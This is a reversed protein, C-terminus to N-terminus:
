LVVEFYRQTMQVSMFAIGEDVDDPQGDAQGDAQHDAQERLELQTVVPKVGIGVTDMPQVLGPLVHTLYSCRRRADRLYQFGGKRFDLSDGDHM